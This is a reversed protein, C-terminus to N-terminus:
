AAIRNYISLLHKKWSVDVLSDSKVLRWGGILTPDVVVRADHEGSEKHARSAHHEKAVFLTNTIKGSERQILRNFARAVKPMLASRGKSELVKAVTRVADAHAMGNQILQLLARAYAREM